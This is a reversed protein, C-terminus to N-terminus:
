QGAEEEALFADLAAAVRPADTWMAKYDLRGEKDAIFIMNPMWGFARAVTEDLEDV